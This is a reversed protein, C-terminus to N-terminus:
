GKFYDPNKPRRGDDQKSVIYYVLLCFVGGIIGLIGVVDLLIFGKCIYDLNQEIEEDKEDLLDYRESVACPDPFGKVIILIIVGLILGIVGLLFLFNKM